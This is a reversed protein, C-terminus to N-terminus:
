TIARSIFQSPIFRSMIAAGAAFAFPLLCFDFPLLSSALQPARRREGKGRAKQLKGKAKGTLAEGEAAGGQL